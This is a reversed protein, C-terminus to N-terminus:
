AQAARARNAGALALDTLAGYVNGWAAQHEPTWRDGCHEALTAILCEGVWPYMEDTVGYTLHKVGIAGLTDSLWQGDEIHDLAAVIADQLMRAQADGSNRGFLPKVVPYREFLIEYFRRTIVPEREAAWAISQYLLEKDSM